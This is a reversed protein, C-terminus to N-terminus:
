FMRERITITDGPRIPHDATVRSTLIRGSAQRHIVASQERARETYGGAIAAAMKVTLGAVYPYQGPSEVEGLIFFPRYTAVEVTVNPNRIYKAGLQGGIAQELDRATRGRAEVAGILPFAVNGAPDIAYTNSLDEQGFVVIRLQDGSDLYYPNALSDRFERSTQTGACAALLAAFVSLIVVLRMRM